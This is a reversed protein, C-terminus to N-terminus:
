RSWASYDWDANGASADVALCALVTPQTPDVFM